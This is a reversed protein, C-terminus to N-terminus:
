IYHLNQCQEVINHWLIWHSTSYSSVHWRCNVLLPNSVKRAFDPVTFVHLTRPTSDHLGWLVPTLLVYCILTHLRTDERTHSRKELIVYYFTVCPCLLKM